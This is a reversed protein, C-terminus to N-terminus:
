GEDENLKGGIVSKLYQVGRRNLKYKVPRGRQRVNDGMVYRSAVGSLATSANPQSVPVGLERTVKAIEGSSLGVKNRFHEHVLYLPLLIRDVQSTRDLIQREIAEADDCNKATNVLEHLDLSNGNEGTAASPRGDRDQKPPKARSPPSKDFVNLFEHVENASGEITVKTGNALEFSAKAM